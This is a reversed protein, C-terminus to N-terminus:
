AEVPVPAPEGVSDAPTSGSSAPTSSPANTTGISNPQASSQSQTNAVPPQELVAAAHSGSATPKGLTVQTLKDRNVVPVGAPQLQPRIVDTGLGLKELLWITCWTFDFEWWRIGHRASKPVGHHNNHWGEGLSLIAVWWVNTSDERTNFNRYGQSRLHCVANVAQTSWFVIGTALANMLMASLGFAAFIIIRVGINVALCRQAQAPSHSDGCWRFIPDKMLDAAQKRLEEDNQVEYTKFMWGYLAHKFGRRPSHPDGVEDSKQHHLRHVGVWVIPSGMLCLYGGAVIVYMLWRPVKLSKHTLLRHYGLTIGLGAYVYSGFFWAAMYWPNWNGIDFLGFTALFLGGIYFRAAM